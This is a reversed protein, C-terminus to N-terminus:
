RETISVGAYADQAELVCEEPLVVQLSRACSFMSLTTWRRQPLWNCATIGSVACAACAALQARALSKASLCSLCVYAWSVQEMSADLGFAPHM